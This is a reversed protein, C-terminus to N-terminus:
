YYQFDGERLRSQRKQIPPLLRAGVHRHRLTPFPRHNTEAPRPQRHLPTRPPQRRRQLRAMGLRLGPSSFPTLDFSRSPSLRRFLVSNTKLKKIKLKSKLLSGTQAVSGVAEVPNFRIIWTREIGQVILRRSVQIGLAVASMASKFNDFGGFDKELLQKVDAGPEGGDPSLMQWLGDDNGGEM